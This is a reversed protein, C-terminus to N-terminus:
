QSESFCVHLTPPTASAGAVHIRIRGGVDKGFDLTLLPSGTRDGQSVLRVPKKTRGLVADPDGTIAGDRATASLVRTPTVTHGTPALM